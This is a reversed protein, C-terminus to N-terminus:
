NEDTNQLIEDFQIDVCTRDATQITFKHIKSM